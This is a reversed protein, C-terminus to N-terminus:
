TRPHAAAWTALMRHTSEFAIEPIPDNASLWLLADADDQPNEVGNLIRAEYIIVISADGSTDTNGEVDILRTIKVDLGTEEFVERCAAEQPNEGADVFGAPLAWKGQEPQMTRRVLLVRHDQEIFVVVAVKPDAFHVFGCAPCVPRIKGHAMQKVMAHGCIQCYNVPSQKM